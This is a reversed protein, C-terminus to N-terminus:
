AGRNLSPFLFHLYNAEACIAKRRRIKHCCNNHRDSEECERNLQLESAASVHEDGKALQRYLWSFKGGPEASPGVAFSAKEIV